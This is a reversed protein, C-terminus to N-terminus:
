LIGTMMEPPSLWVAECLSRATNAKHLRICDLLNVEGLDVNCFGLTNQVVNCIQWTNQVVKQNDGTEGSKSPQMFYM